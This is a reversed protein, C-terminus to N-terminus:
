FGKDGHASSRYSPTTQRNTHRDFFSFTHLFNMNSMFLRSVVSKYEESTSHELSIDKSGCMITIVFPWSYM